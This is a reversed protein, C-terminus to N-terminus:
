ARRLTCKSIKKTDVFTCRYFKQPYMHPPEIGICYNNNKVFFNRNLLEHTSEKGKFTKFESSKVQDLLINSFRGKYRSNLYSTSKWILTKENASTSEKLYTLTNDKFIVYTALLIAKVLIIQFM